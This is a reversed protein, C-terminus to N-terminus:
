FVAKLLDMKLNNIILLNYVFMYIIYFIANKKKMLKTQLFLDLKFYQHWVM